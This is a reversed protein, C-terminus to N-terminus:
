KFFPTVFYFVLLAFSRIMPSRMLVMNEQKVLILIIAIILSALLTFLGIFMMENAGNLHLITFLYAVCVVSIGIYMIKQLKNILLDSLTMKRGDSKLSQIAFGSLFYIMALTSFGILFLQSAFGNNMIKLLIAALTMVIGTREGWKLIKSLLQIM